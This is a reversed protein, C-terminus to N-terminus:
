SGRGEPSPPPHPNARRLHTFGPLGEGQGREWLSLPCPFMALFTEHKQVLDSHMLNTCEHQERPKHKPLSASSLLPSRQSKTYGHCSTCGRDTPTCIGNWM